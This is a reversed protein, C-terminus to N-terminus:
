FNLVRKAANLLSLREKLKNTEGDNGQSLSTNKAFNEEEKQKLAIKTRDFLVNIKVSLKVATQLLEERYEAIKKYKKHKERAENFQDILKTEEPLIKKLLASTKTEEKQITVKPDTPLHELTYSFFNYIIQMYHITYYINYM